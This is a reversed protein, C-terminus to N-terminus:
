EFLFLLSVSEYLHVVVWTGRDEKEVSAVFGQVGVERLHGFKGKKDGWVDRREDRGGERERRV